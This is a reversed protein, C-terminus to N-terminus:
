RQRGAMSNTYRDREYQDGKGVGRKVRRVPCRPFRPYFSLSQYVFITLFAGFQAKMREPKDEYTEILYCVDNRRIFNYHTLASDVSNAVPAWTPIMTSGFSTYVYGDDDFNSECAFFLAM